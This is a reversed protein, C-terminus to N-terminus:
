VTLGREVVSTKVEFVTQLGDTVTVICHSARLLPRPMQALVQGHLRVAEGEAADIDPLESGERDTFSQGGSLHFFYRPM